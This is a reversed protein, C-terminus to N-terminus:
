AYWKKDADGDRVEHLTLFFKKLKKKEFKLILSQTKLWRKLFGSCVYQCLKMVIQAFSQSKPSIFFVRVKTLRISIKKEDLYTLSYSNQHKIINKFSYYDINFFMMKSTNKVKEFFFTLFVVKKVINLKKKKRFRIQRDFFCLVYTKSFFTKRKSIVGHSNIIEDFGKLVTYVM